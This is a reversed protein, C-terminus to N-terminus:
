QESQQDGGGSASVPPEEQLLGRAARQHELAVDLHPLDIEAELDCAADFLKIHVFAIHHARALRQGREFLDVEGVRQGLRARLPVLHGRVVLLEAVSVAGLLDRLCFRKDRLALGREGIRADGQFSSLRKESRGRARLFGEVVGLRGFPLVVRQKIGRALGQAKLLGAEALLVDRESLALEVLTVHRYLNGCRLRVSASRIAGLM